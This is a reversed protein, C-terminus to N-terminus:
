TAAKTAPIAGCEPCRDPTARLDYGCSPCRGPRTRKRHWWWITLRISTPLTLVVVIVWHPFEVYLQQEIHSYSGHSYVFHFPQYKRSHTIPYSERTFGATPGQIAQPASEEWLGVGGMETFAGFGCTQDHNWWRLYDTRWYSRFWLVVAVLYLVASVTAAVNFAWRLLRRM